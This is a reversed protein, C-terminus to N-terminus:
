IHILSLWFGIGIVTVIAPRLLTVLATYYSLYIALSDSM